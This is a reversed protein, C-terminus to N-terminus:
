PGGVEWLGVKGDWSGSAVWRGDPSFAV